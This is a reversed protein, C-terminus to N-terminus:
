CSTKVRAYNYSIPKHQHFDFYAICTYMHSAFKSMLISWFVGNKFLLNFIKQSLPMAGQSLLMAWEGSGVKLPSLSVGDGRGVGRSAKPARGEHGGFSIDPDSM